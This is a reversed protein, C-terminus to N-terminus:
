SVGSDDPDPDPPLPKIEKRGAEKIKADIGERIARDKEPTVIFHDFLREVVDLTWEAEERTVDLVESGDNRQTHASFDAIERLHHLNERLSRPQNTDDIFKDIRTTLSFQGLNAYKELLDSLVRRALVASMRHSRDLIAAAEIFDRAFEEPVHPDVQRVRDRPYGISTDTKTSSTTGDDVIYSDHFRVVLQKCPENACAMHDVSVQRRDMSHLNAVPHWADPTNEGCTPCKM